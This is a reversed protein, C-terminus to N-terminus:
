SKSYYSTIYFQNRNLNRFIRLLLPLELINDLKRERQYQIYCNEKFVLKVIVVARLFIDIASILKLYLKKKNTDYSLKLCYISLMVLLM